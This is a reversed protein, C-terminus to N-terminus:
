QNGETTLEEQRRRTCGKGCNETYNKTTTVTGSCRTFYHTGGDVFRYVTCGDVASIAVPIRQESKYEPSPEAIKGIFLIFAGLIGVGIVLFVLTVLSAKFIEVISEWLGNM